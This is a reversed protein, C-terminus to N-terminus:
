FLGPPPPPPAQQQTAPHVQTIPVSAVQSEGSLLALADNHIQFPFGVGLAEVLAPCYPCAQIRDEESTKANMSGRVVNSMDVPTLSVSHAFSALVGGAAGVVGTRATGTILIHVGKGDAADQAVVGRVVFAAGALNSIQATIDRRGTVVSHAGGISVSKQAKATYYRSLDHIPANPKTIDFHTYYTNIFHRAAPVALSSENEGPLPDPRENRPVVIFLADPPPPPPISNSQINPPMSTRTSDLQPSLSASKSLSDHLSLKSPDPMNPSEPHPNSSHHQEKTQLPANPDSTSIAPDPPAQMGPPPRQPSPSSRVRRFGNSSDGSKKDRDADPIAKIVRTDTAGKAFDGRGKDVIKSVDDLQKSGNEPKGNEKGAVNGKSGKTNDEDSGGWSVSSNSRSYQGSSCSSLLKASDAADVAMGDDTASQRKKKEQKRKKKRERFIDLIRRRDDTGFSPLKDTSDPLRWVVKGKKNTRPPLNENNLVVTDVVVTDDRIIDVEWSPLDDDSGVKELVLPRPDSITHRDEM